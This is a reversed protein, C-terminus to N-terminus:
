IFGKEAARDDFNWGGEQVTDQGRLRAELDAAEIRYQAAKAVSEQLKQAGYVREAVRLRLLDVFGPPLGLSVESDIQSETMEPSSARYRVLYEAGEIPAAFVLCDWRPRRVLGGWRNELDSYVRHGDEDLVEDIRVLDGTYPNAASDIIYKEVPAAHTLAHEVRLYYQTVGVSTRLVLEKQHIQHDIHLQRLVSNITPLLKLRLAASPYETTAVADPEVYNLDSLEILCLDKLFTEFNM